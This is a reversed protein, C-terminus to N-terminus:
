AIGLVPYKKLVYVCCFEEEVTLETRQAKPSKNTQKTKLPPSISERMEMKATSLWVGLFAHLCVWPKDGFINIM